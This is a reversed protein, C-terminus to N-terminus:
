LKIIKVAKQVQGGNWNAQVQYTGAAMSKMDINLLNNGPLLSNQQM